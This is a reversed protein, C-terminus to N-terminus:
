SLKQMILPLLIEPSETYGIKNKRKLLAGRLKAETEIVVSTRATRDLARTRWIKVGMNRLDLEVDDMWRFISRGTEKRGGLKGEVLKKVAKEDDM